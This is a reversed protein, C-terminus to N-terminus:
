GVLRMRQKAGDTLCIGGVQMRKVTLYEEQAAVWDPVYLEALAQGKKVTDLPAYTSNKSLVM